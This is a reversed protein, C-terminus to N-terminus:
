NRKRKYFKKRNNRRNKEEKKRKEKRKKLDEGMVEFNGVCENVACTSAGGLV